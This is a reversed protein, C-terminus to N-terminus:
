HSPIFAKELFKVFENHKMKKSGVKYNLSNYQIIKYEDFGIKDFTIKGGQYHPVSVGNGEKLEKLIDKVITSISKEESEELEVGEGEKKIIEVEEVSKNFSNMKTGVEGDDNVIETEVLGMKKIKPIEGTLEWSMYDFARNNFVFSKLKNFEEFSIFEGHASKNRMGNFEVLEKGIEPLFKSLIPFTNEKYFLALDRWMMKHKALNGDHKYVINRLEQELVGFYNMALGTYSILDKSKKLAGEQTIASAITKHSTDSFGNLKLKIKQYENYLVDMSLFEYLIESSNSKSEVFEWGVLKDGTDIKLQILGINKDDSLGNLLIERCFTAVVKLAGYDVTNFAYDLLSASITKVLVIYQEINTLGENEFEMFDVVNTANKIGNIKDELKNIDKYFLWYIDGYFAKLSRDNPQSKGLEKLIQEIRYLCFSRLGKPIPHNPIIAEEKFLPEFTFKHVYKHTLRSDSSNLTPQQFEFRKIKVIDKEMCCVKYKKGSGCPCSKNKSVSM